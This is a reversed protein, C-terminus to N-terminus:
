WFFNSSHQVMNVRYLRIIDWGLLSCFVIKFTAHCCIKMICLTTGGIENCVYCEWNINWKRVALHSQTRSVTKTRSGCWPVPLTSFYHFYFTFNNRNEEFLSKSLKVICLAFNWLFSISPPTAPDAIVGRPACSCSGRLKLFWIKNKLQTPYKLDTYLSCPAIKKWIKKM